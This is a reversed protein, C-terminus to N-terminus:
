CAAPARRGSFAGDTNTYVPECTSTYSILHSDDPDTATVALMAEEFEAMATLRPLMLLDGGDDATVM